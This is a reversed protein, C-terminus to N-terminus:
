WCLSCLTTSSSGFGPILMWAVLRCDTVSINFKMCMQREKSILPIIWRRLVLIHPVSETLLGKMKIPKTIFRLVPLPFDAKPGFFKARLSWIPPLINTSPKITTVSPSFSWAPSVCPWHRFAHEPPYFLNHLVLSRFTIGNTGSSLEVKQPGTFFWLCM